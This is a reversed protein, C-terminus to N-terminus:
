AGAIGSIGASIEISVVPHSIVKPTAM